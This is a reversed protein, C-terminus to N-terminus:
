HKGLALRAASIDERGHGAEVAVHWQSLRAAAETTASVGITGMQAWVAGHAFADAVGGDFIVSTVIDATPLMTIVVAADRVADRPSAAVLTGASALQATAQESRDWVTTRMGAAALNRAMASGMIGTGLVAVAQEAGTAAFQSSGPTDSM